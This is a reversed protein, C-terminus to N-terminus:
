RGGEDKLVGVEDIFQDFPLVLRILALVGLPECTGVLPDPVGYLCIADAQGQRNIIPAIIPKGQPGDDQGCMYIVINRPHRFSRDAQGHLRKANEVGM